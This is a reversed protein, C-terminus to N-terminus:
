GRAPGSLLRLLRTLASQAARERIEARGGPFRTRYAEAVGDVCVGIWVTGVPKTETGGGPGAVGTIGVGADAGLREAVGTALQLAVAESVAGHEALSAESVGVQRVKVENAYAIVGGLFVHSAGPVATVRAGLLGGTCSEAVALTRETSRLAAVVAAAVDGEGDEFRYPALVQEVGALWADFRSEAESAQGGRVTLRLDVGRLDPLYALSVAERVDPPLAAIAPELAEALKTEFIGTTHVVRHRVAAGAFRGLVEDFDGGVIARLEAPVGPFLAVTKGDRELLLGPATGVPNRLAQAGEPVQYQGRSMPPVEDLGASGFRAEVERRAGEDEVLRLGFHEAVVAKTRDDPTPGLGGTVLVLDASAMAADLADRIDADVDGVTFRRVVEIGRASLTRGLWAANTDVTEGFLLENGVTVIAARTPREVTM